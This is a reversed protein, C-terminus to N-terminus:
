SDGLREFPLKANKHVARIGPLAPSVVGLAAQGSKQFSGVLVLTEDRKM